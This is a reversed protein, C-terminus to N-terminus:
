NSLTVLCAHGQMQAVHDEVCICRSAVDDVVDHVGDRATPQILLTQSCVAMATAGENARRALRQGSSNEFSACHFGEWRRKALTPIGVPKSVGFPNARRLTCPARNSSYLILLCSTAHGPEGRTVHGSLLLTLTRTFRLLAECFLSTTLPTTFFVGMCLSCSTHRLCPSRPM